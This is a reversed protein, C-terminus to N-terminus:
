GTIKYHDEDITTYLMGQNSMHSIMNKVDTMGLTSFKPKLKQYIFDM